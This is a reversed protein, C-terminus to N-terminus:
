EAAASHIPRDRAPDYITDSMPMEERMRGAITMWINWVMVGGGALYLAGGAARILYYPQMAAVVEAFAYVLYGDAGYERWM